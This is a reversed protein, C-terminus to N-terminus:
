RRQERLCEALHDFVVRIRRSTHLERHTVLWTPFVFPAMDTLVPEFEPFQAAIADSMVAIGLGNRALEWAVLGSNSGLRFNDRTLSLGTPLLFGLMQDSDVFSIVQHDRLDDAVSPNGRAELYGRVAYFRATEERILKAVLSPQEPRVHRIAIDAERLLLDRVSNDAVIEIELRPATTRLEEIFPPLIYASMMDSATIRVKGEVAQSQGSATLAAMNAAKEMAWIHDLLEIGSATITLSRGTREFLVLNLQQEFATVQRSLTPQTLGLRRAAGSLSGEEATALFARAHNWDFAAPPMDM